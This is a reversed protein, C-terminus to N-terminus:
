HQGGVNKALAVGMDIQRVTKRSDVMRMGIGAIVEHV